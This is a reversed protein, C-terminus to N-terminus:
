VREYEHDHPKIQRRLAELAYRYRSAITNISEDLSQAIQAFTLDGWIKLVVVERQAQPLREIAAEIAECHERQEPGADIQLRTSESHSVAVHVLVGLLLFHVLPERLIRM